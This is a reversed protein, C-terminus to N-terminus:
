PSFSTKFLKEKECMTYKINTWNLLCNSTLYTQLNLIGKSLFYQQLLVFQKNCTIDEIGVINEEDFYRERSHCYKLSKWILPITSSLKFLTFNLLLHGTLYSINNYFFFIGIVLIKTKEWNKEREIYYRM